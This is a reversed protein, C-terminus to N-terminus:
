KTGEVKVGVDGTRNGVHVLFSATKNEEGAYLGDGSATPMGGDDINQIYPCGLIICNWITVFHLSFM